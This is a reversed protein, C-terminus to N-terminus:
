PLGRLALRSTQADFSNEAQEVDRGLASQARRRIERWGGEGPEYGKGTRRTFMWQYGEPDTVTYTRVEYTQDKPAEANVGAATVRAHHADVDDVWVINLQSPRRGEKEWYGPGHGSMWIENSGAIM